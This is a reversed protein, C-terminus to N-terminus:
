ALPQRVRIFYFELRNASLPVSFSFEFFNTFRGSTPSKNYTRVQSNIIVLAGGGHELFVVRVGCTYRM